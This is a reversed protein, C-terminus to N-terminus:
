TEDSNVKCMLTESGSPSSKAQLVELVFYCKEIRYKLLCTPYLIQDLEAM